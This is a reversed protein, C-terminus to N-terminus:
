ITGEIINWASDKCDDEMEKLVANVIAQNRISVKREAYGGSNGVWKVYPITCIIKDKHIHAIQEGDYIGVTVDKTITQM